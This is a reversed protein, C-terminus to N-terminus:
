AGATGSPARAAQRRRRRRSRFAEAFFGLLFGLALALALAVVLSTNASFFVFSINVRDSNILVFVVAYLVIAGLGILGWSVGAVGDRSVTPQESTPPPQHESM